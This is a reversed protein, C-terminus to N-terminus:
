PGTLGKKEPAAKTPPASSEAKPAEAKPAKPTKEGLNDINVTRTDAKDVEFAITDGAIVQQNGEGFIIESLADDPMYDKADENFVNLHANLEDLAQQSVGANGVNAFANIQPQQQQQEIGIVAPPPQEGGPNDPLNKQMDISKDWYANFTAKVGALGITGALTGANIQSTNVEPKGGTIVGYAEEAGAGLTEKVTVKALQAGIKAGARGANGVQRGVAAVRAFM